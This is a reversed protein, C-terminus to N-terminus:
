DGGVGAAPSPVEAQLLRRIRDVYADADWEKPGIYREIVSGDAGILLTEPFRFTQYLHAVRQQPDLLIPFSLHLRDRFREVSAADEDVSIALLEFSPGALEDYLQQMAPMEDECPKCWTAWFNVLVVRGRLDSLQLADPSGLPTLSFEPARSGRGIPESAPEILMAFVAGAIVCAAVLWIGRRGEM